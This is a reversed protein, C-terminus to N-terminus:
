HRGLPSEGGALLDCEAPGPQEGHATRYKGFIEGVDVDAQNISGEQRRTRFPNTFDGPLGLTSSQEELASGSGTRRARKQVYEIGLEAVAASYYQGLDAAQSARCLIAQVLCTRRIDDGFHKRTFQREVYIALSELLNYGM